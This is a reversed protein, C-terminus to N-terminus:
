EADEAKHDNKRRYFTRINVGLREAIEENTMGLSSLLDVQAWDISTNVKNRGAYRTSKRYVESTDWYMNVDYGSSVKLFSVDVGFQELLKKLKELQLETLYSEKVTFNLKDQM